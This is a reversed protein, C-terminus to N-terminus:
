NHSAFRSDMERASMIMHHHPTIAPVINEEGIGVTRPEQQKNLFTNFSVPVPNVSKTQHAVMNVQQNLNARCREGFDNLIETESIRSIDVLLPIRYV